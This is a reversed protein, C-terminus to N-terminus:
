RRRQSFPSRRANERFHSLKRPAKPQPQDDQEEKRKFSVKPYIYNKELFHIFAVSGIHGCVRDYNGSETYAMLESLLWIDKITQVRKVMIEEGKENKDKINEDLYNAYMGILKNKSQRPTWGYKRADNDTYKLSSNFDVHKALYHDELRLTELYTQFVGIDENEPFFTANYLELLMLVKDNLEKYTKPRGAYSAVLKRGSDDGFVPYKYIGITCVSDTSTTKEQKYFDGSGIFLYKPPNKEPLEFLLFPADQNEGRFPFEVLPKKSPTIEIEGTSGRKLDYRADWLGTELLYERHKRAEEYVNSFPSIESSLFVEEPDIPYQVTEQQLLLNDDQVLKRNELIVNLNHKWDAQHIIIKDLEESDIGLFKGFPVKISKLGTKYSMQAPVFTAFKRRKWSIAEMPIKSEFTDWDMEMFNLSAPNALASMADGSLSAEGGTNHTIIGNAIYTHTTGATLNYVPKLGLYELSVVREFRLGSVEKPTKSGKGKLREILNDLADQKYKPLYRINKYFMDLSKKDAISLCYHGNVGKISDEKNFSPKKYKINSHIGLKQLLLQVELMLNKYASSLEISKIGVYSDADFIGGLLECIDEKKYSHTHLPLTKKDKTQGYIGLNRLEKTIGKIRTEKYVKNTKTIYSKEETCEFNTYVYNNIEEDCNSLVPTKDFGYSGDGILLGMLRPSYMEATGFINIDEITAIQEGVKLDKTEKFYLKRTRNSRHGEKEDRSRFLIPHDDSCELIRGTNTTIRYCEKEHPPQWYTIEEQSLSKNELNYGLIGNIPNLEEINILNGQNDWVKSGACVCGVAIPVCKWKEKTEFSPKAALYAKKWDFKGIEEILFVSPAGGATKQTSKTTGGALNKVLFRSYEVLNSATTKLGLEVSGGLWEQSQVYLYFAKPIYKMATKIKHTLDILDGESGSSITASSNSKTLAKWYCYSAMLTSKGLRRSGYLMVGRDGAEEARKIEEVFLWENDRFDPNVIPETGDSQPIPTKFFNIHFYLWPHIKYGDIEFGQTIKVWENQWFPLTTKQDQEWFHKKENWEPVKKQELLERYFTKDTVENLLNLSETAEKIDNNVITLVNAMALSAIQNNYFSFKLDDPESKLNLTDLKDQISIKSNFVDDQFAIEQTKLDIQEDTDDTSEILEDLKYDLYNDCKSIHTNIIDVTEDIFKQTKALKRDADATKIFAALRGVISKTLENEQKFLKEKRSLDEDIDWNNSQIVSANRKFYEKHQKIFKDIRESM